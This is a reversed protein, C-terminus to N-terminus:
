RAMRRDLEATLERINRRLASVDSHAFHENGNHILTIHWKNSAILARLDRISHFPM